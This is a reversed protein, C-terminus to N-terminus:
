YEYVHELAGGSTELRRVLGALEPVKVLLGERHMGLRAPVQATILKKGGPLPADNPVFVTIFIDDNGAIEVFEVGGLALHRLIHTYDRYRPTEIVQEGGALTTVPEVNPLPSVSANWGRVVTRIRRPAPAVGAAAEIAKAYLAKAGFELTFSARREVSRVISDTRWPVDAWFSRLKQWFPYAYWPTQVLFVAYDDAVDRSYSDEPTPKNRAVAQTLWGVTHEYAGKIAMEVSFSVGITYLMAKSDGTIEGQATAQRTM